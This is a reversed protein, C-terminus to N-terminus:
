LKPEKRINPNMTSMDRKLGRQIYEPSRNRHCFLPCKKQKCFVPANAGPRSTGHECARCFAKIASMPTKYPTKKHVRFAEERLEMKIRKRTEKAKKREEPHEKIWKQTRESASLM